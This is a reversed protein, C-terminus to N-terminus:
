FKADKVQAWRGSTDVLIEKPVRLISTFRYLQHLSLPLKEGNPWRWKVWNKAMHGAYNNRGYAIWESFTNMGCRYQVRLSDSAGPKQHISYTVNDVVCWKQRASNNAVIASTSAQQQLKVTFKFEYGCADCVKVTPHHICGCDPCKKTIPNGTGKGKKKSAPRVDNIPGLRETNGAFDLFLCHDKDPAIRSGRGATQVHIILSLTPRMMAILDIGPEDFGTTLIDVNVIARYIGKKFLALEVLREEKMKSHVCCCPIGNAELVEKIHEAHDIDIAFFLWKKYKKGYKIVELVASETIEKRDIAASLEKGNFEGAVTGVGEVNFETQTSLTVLKSLYGEDVLRNYITFSGGNYAIKQFLTDEGEHIFGHGTRYPTATLGLVPSFPFNSIFERYMGRNEHNVLHCEDIIILALNKFLEPKRYISQIGAVTITKKSEREGLGASYIGVMEEGLADAITNYNQILITEVHSICVVTQNPHKELFNEIIKALTPTKGSGTPLVVVSNMGHAIQEAAAKAAEDQYWRLEMVPEM